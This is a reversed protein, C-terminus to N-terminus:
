FSLFTFLIKHFKKICKKMKLMRVKTRKNILRDFRKPIFLIDSFLMSKTPCSFAYGLIKNM